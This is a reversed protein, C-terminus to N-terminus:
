HGSPPTRRLRGLADFRLEEPMTRTHQQHNLEVALECAADLEVLFQIRSVPAGANVDEKPSAALAPASAGLSDAQEGPEQELLATVVHDRDIRRRSVPTRDAAILLDAEPRDAHHTLMLAAVIALEV